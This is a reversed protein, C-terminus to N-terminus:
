MAKAHKRTEVRTLTDEETKTRSRQEDAKRNYCVFLFVDIQMIEEEAKTLQKM